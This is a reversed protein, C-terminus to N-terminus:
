KRTKLNKQVKNRRVASKKTTTTKIKSTSPPIAIQTSPCKDPCPDMHNFWNYPGESPILGDLLRRYPTGDAGFTIEEENIFFYLKNPSKTKPNYAPRLIIDFLKGTGAQHQPNRKLETIMGDYEGIEVVLSFLNFVDSKGYEAQYNVIDTITKKRLFHLLDIERMGYDDNSSLIFYSKDLMTTPLQPSNKIFTEGMFVLYLENGDYAPYIRISYCVGRNCPLTIGFVRKMNSYDRDSFYFGASCNLKTEYGNIFKTFETKAFSIEEASLSGFKRFKFPDQGPNYHDDTQAISLNHIAFTATLSPSKKKM